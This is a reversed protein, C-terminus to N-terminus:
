LTRVNILNIINLELKQKCGDKHYVSVKVQLRVLFKLGLTM